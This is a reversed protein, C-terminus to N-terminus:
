SLEKRSRRNRVLGLLLLAHPGLFLLIAVVPNMGWANVAGIIGLIPGVLPIQCLVIFLLFGLFFNMSSLWSMVAAFEVIGLIIYLIALFTTM